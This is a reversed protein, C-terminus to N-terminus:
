GHRRNACAAKFRKASLDSTSKAGMVGVRWAPDVAWDAGLVLGQNRQQLDGGGHQGDLSGANGLGQLWVRSNADGNMEGM